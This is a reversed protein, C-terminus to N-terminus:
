LGGGEYYGWHKGIVHCIEGITTYARVCELLAPVTNAGSRVVDDLHNLCDQVRTSDREKKLRHLSEIVHGQIAEDVKFGDIRVKEDKNQFKNLGVIIREGREIQQQYESASKQILMQYFKQDIAKQAGGRAEIEDILELAQMELQNTLSEIFYSGGLPDAVDAIGTENALIHQTMLALHAAEQSPLSLVEDMASCSLSQAGGLIAALAEIAVRVVNNMPQQATMTYGTTYVRIFCKMSEPKRAYYKEKLM